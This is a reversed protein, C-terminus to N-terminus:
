RGPQLLLQEAPSFVRGRILMTSVLSTLGSAAFIMALVVFQYIAAYVPRAGSLLMGAMLGPIWVIGLSRLSDIAPILSAEFSAQVYPSVSNRAEAGLALATEIEGAHALVDSRFRNLALGNTNMANAILMSGVPVLSTIATDIVGLSTMLAIISGAGFAIAWASVRFADPMGKARRASTAGAAVIMGALLFGSTWRPARLLIVLISGVAIIQVLGRVMAILTEGELHIGRRRALVVVALAALAAVLAQALGLQLQSHFWLRLVFSRRQRVSGACHTRSELVLARGALRAAQAVDHTVMVCTLGQDRVVKQIASEVELKAAEDLASTPEDLLLVLPSNALTRAVSVRQAEGGSLNAVDRGAYDKLGVQALLEEIAESPLTEGRQAPGFRLNDAVTGPFLYPRQTVMGLKRRLERPEINRYDQARSM